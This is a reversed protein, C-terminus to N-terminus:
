REFLAEVPKLQSAKRAPYYGFFIGIFLTIILSVTSSFFDTIKPLHAISSISSHAAIGFAIGLIGGILCLIVAEFLFQQQIMTQTAGLALRVGIEKTREKISVLMINMIGIGGVILSISAAIIGFLSVILTAKKAAKAISEQDFIIFDDPEGTEITHNFRLIRKVLRLTRGPEPDSSRLAIYGLDGDSFEERRFYNDAVSFPIYAHMNPDHPGGFWDIPAFVGIVTFPHREITMTQGIPYAKKFLREALKAGLVVVPVRNKVHTDTFFSGQGITYNTIQLLNANMGSVKDRAMQSEFQMTCEEEHGGTIAVIGPLQKAIAEVDKVTLRAPKATSSRIRGREMVNGAVIFMAGEGMSLIQAQVKLEAGKGITLTIMIAAVGIMIGLMTLLSRIKHQTLARLATRILTVILM